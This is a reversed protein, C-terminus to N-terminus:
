DVVIGPLLQKTLGSIKKFGKNDLSDHLLVVGSLCALKKLLQTIGNTNMFFQDQDTQHRISAAHRNIINALQTFLNIVIATYYHQCYHVQQSPFQAMVSTLNNAYQGLSKQLDTEVQVPIRGSISSM